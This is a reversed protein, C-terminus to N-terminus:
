ILGFFIRKKLFRKEGALLGMLRTVSKASLFANEM